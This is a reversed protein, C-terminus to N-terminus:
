HFAGTGPLMNIKRKGQKRMTNVVKKMFVLQDEPTHNTRTEHAPKEKIAGKRGLKQHTGHVSSVFKGHTKGGINKNTPIDKYGPGKM